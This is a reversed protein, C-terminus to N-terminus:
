SFSLKACLLFLSYLSCLSYSTMRVLTLDEHLMEKTKTENSSSAFCDSKRATHQAKVGSVLSIQLLSSKELIFFVEMKILVLLHAVRLCSMM